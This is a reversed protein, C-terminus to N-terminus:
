SLAGPVIAEVGLFGLLGAPAEGALLLAAADFLEAASLLPEAGLLSALCAGVNRGSPDTLNV